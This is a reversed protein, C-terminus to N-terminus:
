KPGAPTWEIVYTKHTADSTRESVVKVIVEAKNNSRLRVLTPLRGIRAAEAEPVKLSSASKDTLSPWENPQLWLKV